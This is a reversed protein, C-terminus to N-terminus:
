LEAKTGATARIVDLDLGPSLYELQPILIQRHENHVCLFLTKITKREDSFVPFENFDRCRSSRSFYDSKFSNNKMM